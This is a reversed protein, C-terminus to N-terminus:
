RSYLYEIRDNKLKIDIDGGFNYPFGKFFFVLVM